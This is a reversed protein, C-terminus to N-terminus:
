AIPLVNIEFLRQWPLITKFNFKQFFSYDKSKYLLEESIVSNIKDTELGLNYQESPNIKFFRKIIKPRINAQYLWDDILRIKLLSNKQDMSMNNALLGQALAYGISNDATNWGSYSNLRPCLHARNLEFLLSNDAGNAFAVDALAVKKNIELFYKTKEILKLTAPSAILTNQMNSADLTVGDYPTNIALVLDAESLAYTQRGNVLNIQDEVSSFLHQDSYAPLTTAGAGETYQVFVLPTLKKNQNMARTILMLAIQDVGPVIKFNAPINQPLTKLLQKAEFHTQSYPANDDKGITYYHFANNAYLDILYNHIVLNKKRRSFWDALHQEPILALLNNKESLELPELGISIEKDLLETLRFISPGYYEYYPPEIFKNSNRPTRMLTSFAYIKLNPNTQKIINLAQARKLLVNLPEQHTRSAVLGGYILSDTAIVAYDARTCNQILWNMLGESDGIQRNSALLSEPPVILNEGAFNITQVVYDLSVPRNDLPIYIIKKNAQAFVVNTLSFFM